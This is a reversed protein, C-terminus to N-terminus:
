MIYCLFVLGMSGLLLILFIVVSLGIKILSDLLFAMLRLFPGAARLHVEVGEALEVTQLTDLRRKVGAM